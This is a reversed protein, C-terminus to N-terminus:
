QAEQPSDSVVDKAFDKFTQLKQREKSFKGKFKKNDKMQAKLKKIRRKSTGFRADDDKERSQKNGQLDNKFSNKVKQASADASPQTKDYVVPTQPGVTPNAGSITNQAHFAVPGNFGGASGTNGQGSPGFSAATVENYPKIHKLTDDKYLKGLAKKILADFKSELINTDVHYGYQKAFSVFDILMSKINEAIHQPWNKMPINTLAQYLFFTVLIDLADISENIKKM